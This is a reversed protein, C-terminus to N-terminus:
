PIMLVHQQVVVCPTNSAPGENKILVEVDSDTANEAGVNINSGDGGFPCWFSRIMQCTRSSTRRRGESGGGPPAKM